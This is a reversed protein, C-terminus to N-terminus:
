ECEQGVALVVFEGKGVRDTENRDRGAQRPIEEAPHGM